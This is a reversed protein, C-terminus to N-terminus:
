RPEIVITAPLNPAKADKSQIWASYILDRLMAAGEAMRMETFSDLEPTGAGTLAGHKEFEYVQPAFGGETRLYTLTDAFSDPLTRAPQIKSEIAHASIAHDEIAQDTVAEYNHHISGKTTYNNPNSKEIWGSVNISAHLPMCGDGVYHGLWGAYFLAADEINPLDEKTLPEMDVGRSAPVDGTVIRYVIFTSVLRQYVEEVQWPLTGTFQPTLQAAQEPHQRRLDDLEQLYAYRQRPLPSAALAAEYRFVHDPSSSRSLDPATDPRWRDPEPGLYSIESVARPSRMFAPMDPPLSEAAVLNVLRHGRNSWAFIPLPNLLLLCTMATLLNKYM